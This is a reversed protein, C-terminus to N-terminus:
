SVCKYAKAAIGVSTIATTPTIAVSILARGLSTKFKRNAEGVAAAGMIEAM